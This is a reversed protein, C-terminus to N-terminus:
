ALLEEYRKRLSEAEFQSGIRVANNKATPSVDMTDMKEALIKPKAAYVDIMTRTQLEDVKIAPVLWDKPLVKNNPDIDTMIVPLASMLAEMMPLSQGAYRRPLILADFGTYLSAQSEPNSYDYTVRKDQIPQCETQTKVVVEYDGKSMSMAQYLTRLGNRDAAAEKGNMFLFRKKGTLALNTTKASEFEDAFIPTPLYVAGFLENMEDLKWMSPVFVKDPRPFIRFDPKYWDFFEPNAILVTRCNFHKAISTFSNNYFTECSIVTEMDKVFEVVRDNSPFGYVPSVKFGEYWEPFQEAENFPTSDILMIKDPKLLRALRLTQGQGLGSRDMRAILGVSMDVLKRVWSYDRM